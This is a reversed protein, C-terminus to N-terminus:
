LSKLYEILDARDEPTLTFKFFSSYHDVVEGLNAASGDHFYPAHQWLARLPTTRYQGTTGRSARLPDMGTEGADHLTLNADTFTPPIHCSACRADFTTKGRAAAEEDFAPPPPTQLSLQYALLQPLKSTVLDPNADIDIGLEPDSFDGQGHMQTVAVYANWYSIPGEGSYTELDVDQLGYIPPLVVPDSKGDHNFYADYKGPGWSNLAMRVEPQDDFFPSLAVIRGPDLDHNAWGDLRRGVGQMVSNDVNSHCLACTIGVKQIKGGAVPAKLGVVADRKLLEVTTAPSTLDAGALFGPPLQESDVKLGVALATTPDVATEIVENMRLTGTWFPENGFTEFRFVNRGPGSAGKAPDPGLLTGSGSDDCAAFYVVIGFIAFWAFLAPRTWGTFKKDM